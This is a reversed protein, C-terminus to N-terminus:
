QSTGSARPRPRAEAATRNIIAERLAPRPDSIALHENRASHLLALARRGACRGHELAATVSVSDPAAQTVTTRRYPTLCPSAPPGRRAIRNVRGQDLPPRHSRRHPRHLPASDHPAVPLVPGRVVPGGGRGVAVLLHWHRTSDALTCFARRLRKNCGWRFSATKHRGSQCRGRRAAGSHLIEDSTM